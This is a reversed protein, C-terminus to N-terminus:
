ALYKKAIEKFSKIQENKWEESKGLKHMMIEAVKPAAEITAKANLFLSRTRRSLIDEITKAQEFQIAFTIQANNLPLDKHITNNFEEM